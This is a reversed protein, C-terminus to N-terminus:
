RCRQETQEGAKEAAPDVGDHRAEDIDPHRKRRHQERDQEDGHDAGPQMRHDDGDDDDVPRPEAAHHAGLGHGLGSPNRRRRACWRSRAGAIRNRSIRGLTTGTNIASTVSSIPMATTTSAIRENTPRETEDSVGVQPPMIASPRCITCLRPPHEGRRQRRQERGHDGEILEAVAQGAAEIRHQASSRAAARWRSDSRSRTARRCCGTRRSTESVTSVPSTCPRTPSLPAPLDVM